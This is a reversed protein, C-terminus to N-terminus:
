RTSFWTRWITDVGAHLLTPAFLTGTSQFAGGYFWGAVSAVLVYRWNPVPAHFIHSLGFLGSAVLRGRLRSKLSRSLLNQLFGRFFAEELWAVFLFIELYAALFQLIGPWRPNWRIYHLAFGLPIAICTFAGFNFAVARLVGASISLTYGFGPLTRILIWIEAAVATVYLRAVFDLNAPVNWVGQLQHLLVIGMLWVGVLADQWCFVVPNDVPTLTYVAVPVSAIVALRVLAQLRFDGTGSAYILYPAMLVPLLAWGTRRIPRRNAIWQDVPGTFLFVLIL